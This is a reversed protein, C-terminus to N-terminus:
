GYKAFENIILLITNNLTIGNNHLYYHKQVFQSDMEKGAYVFARYLEKKDGQKDLNYLKNQQLKTQFNKSFKVEQETVPPNIIKNLFVFSTRQSFKPHCQIEKWLINQIDNHLTYVQDFSNQNMQDTLDKVSSMTRKITPDDYLHDNKLARTLKDM